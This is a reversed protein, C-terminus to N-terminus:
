QGITGPEFGGLYSELLFAQLKGVSVSSVRLGLAGSHQSLKKTGPCCFLPVGFQIQVPEGVLGLGSLVSRVGLQRASPPTQQPQCSLEIQATSQLEDPSQRIAPWFNGLTQYAGLSLNPSM